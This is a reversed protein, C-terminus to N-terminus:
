ILGLIKKMREEIDVSSHEVSVYCISGGNALHHKMMEFWLM